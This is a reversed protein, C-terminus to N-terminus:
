SARRRKTPRLVADDNGVSNDDKSSALPQASAKRRGIGPKANDTIIILETDEDGNPRPLGVNHELALLDALSPPNELSDTSRDDDDDGKSHNDDEDGDIDDDPSPCANVRSCAHSSYTRPAFWGSM